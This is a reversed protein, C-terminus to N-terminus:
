PVAAVYTRECARQLVSHITTRDVERKEAKKRAENDANVTGHCLEQVLGPVTEVCCIEEATLDDSLTSRERISTAGLLVRCDLPLSKAKGGDVDVRVSAFPWDNRRRWKAVVGSAVAVTSVCDTAHLPTDRQQCEACCYVRSMCPCMVVRQREEYAVIAECVHCLTDIKVGIKPWTGVRSLPLTTRPM